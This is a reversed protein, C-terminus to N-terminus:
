RTQVSLGRKARALVIDEMQPRLSKRLEEVMSLDRFTEVGGTVLGGEDRLLATSVSIPIRKGKVTMIYVPKNVINLGTEMTGRLVCAEECINARFVERCPRGLAEERPIGTIQEAARNFSTIRWELDVTFVGDAICNLITDTKVEIGKCSGRKMPFIRNSKGENQLRKM